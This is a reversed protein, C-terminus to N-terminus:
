KTLPSFCKTSHMYKNLPKMYISSCSNGVITLLHVLPRDINQRTCEKTEFLALSKCTRWIKSIGYNSATYFIYM